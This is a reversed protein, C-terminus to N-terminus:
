ISAIHKITLLLSPIFFIFLNVFELLDELFLHSSILVKSFIAANLHDKRSLDISRFSNDLSSEHSFSSNKFLSHTNSLM